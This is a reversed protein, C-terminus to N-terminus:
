ADDRLDNSVTDGNLQNNQDAWQIVKEYQADLLLSDAYTKRQAWSSISHSLIFLIFLLRRM